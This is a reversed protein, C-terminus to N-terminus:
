KKKKKSNKVKESLNGSTGKVAEQCEWCEPPKLMRAVSEGSGAKGPGVDCHPFFFELGFYKFAAELL